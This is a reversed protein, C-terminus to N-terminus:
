ARQKLCHWKIGETLDYIVPLFAFLAFATVCLASINEFVIHPEYIFATRGTIRYVLVTCFLVLSLATVAADTPSFRFKSYVTRDSCYGRATM